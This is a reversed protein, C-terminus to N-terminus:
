KQEGQQQRGADLARGDAIMCDVYFQAMDAQKVDKSETASIANAQECAPFYVREITMTPDNLDVNFKM